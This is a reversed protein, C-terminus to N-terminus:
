WRTGGSIGRRRVRLAYFVGALIGGVHGASDVRTQRHSLTGYLDYAFMGGILAWAPMPVIFFVLFTSRPFLTGFFALTALVAGSAGVSGNRDGEYRRWALSILSSVMGGGLYLGLFASTGIVGAVTPAIFYLSLMNFFIHQSTNHSFCSTILTWLRGQFINMDSLVFNKTMFVLTSPDKFRQYSSIGYQWLFFIATNIGILIYTIANPSIADLRVRLQRWWRPPPRQGGGGGGGSSNRPFYTNRVGRAPSTGFARRLFSSTFPSSPSPGASGTAKPAPWTWRLKAFPSASKPPPAVLRALQATTSLAARAAAALGPWLRLSM